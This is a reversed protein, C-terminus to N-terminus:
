WLAPHLKHLEGVAHLRLGDNSRLMYTLMRMGAKVAFDNVAQQPSSNISGVARGRAAAAEHGDREGKTNNV